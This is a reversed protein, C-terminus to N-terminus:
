VEVHARTWGELYGLYCIRVYRAVMAAKHRDDLKKLVPSDGALISICETAIRKDISMQPRKDQCEIIWKIGQRVRQRETLPMPMFSTKAGKRSSRIRAYPSAALIAAKFIPIPPSDTM